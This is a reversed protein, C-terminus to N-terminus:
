VKKGTEHTMGRGTPNPPYLVDDRGVTWGQRMLKATRGRSRNMADALAQAIKRRPTMAIIEGSPSNVYFYGLCESSIFQGVVPEVVVALPKRKANTKGRKM